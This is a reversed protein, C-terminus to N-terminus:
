KAYTNAIGLLRCNNYSNDVMYIGTYYKEIESFGKSFVGHSIILYLVADPNIERIRQALVLFTMGGDVIDDSIVFNKNHKIGNKNIPDIVINITNNSRVKDCEVVENDLDLFNLLNWSRQVAGKDPSIVVLDRPLFEKLKGVNGKSDKYQRALFGRDERLMYGLEQRTVDSHPDFTDVRDFRLKLMEIFFKLSFSEGVKCARDQRGYPFYGFKAIIPTTPDINKIADAILCAKMITSSSADNIEVIVSEGILEPNEICVYEEGAPFTSFKVKLEVPNGYGQTFTIVIIM